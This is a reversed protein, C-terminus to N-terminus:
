LLCCHYRGFVEKLYMNMNKHLGAYLLPTTVTHMYTWYKLGQHINNYVLADAIPIKSVDMGLMYFKYVLNPGNSIVALLALITFM